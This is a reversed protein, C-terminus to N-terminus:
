LTPWGARWGPYDGGRQFVWTGNKPHNPIPQPVWVKSYDPTDYIFKYTLDKGGRQKVTLLPITVHLNGNQLSVVDFDSGSFSGFPPLNQNGDYLQQATMLAPGALLLIVSLIAVLSGKWSTRYTVSVHQESLFSGTAPPLRVAVVFLTM